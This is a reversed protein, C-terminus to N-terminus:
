DFARGVVFWIFGAVMVISGYQVQGAFMIAGAACIAGGILKHKKV